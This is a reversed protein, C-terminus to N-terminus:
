KKIIAKITGWIIALDLLFSKHQVYWVDLMIKMPKVATWYVKGPELAEQLIKEEDIFHISAPSTLGPKVSLIIDKASKPIIDSTREEEARPGVVALDGKLINWM